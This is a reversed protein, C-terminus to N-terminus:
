LLDIILVSCLIYCLLHTAPSEEEKHVAVFHVDVLVGSEREREKKVRITEIMTLIIMLHKLSQLDLQGISITLTVCELQDGGCVRDVRKPEGKHEGEIRNM